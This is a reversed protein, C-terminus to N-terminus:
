IRCRSCICCGFNSEFYEDEDKYNILHNIIRTKMKKESLVGGCFFCRKRKSIGIIQVLNANDYCEKRKSSLRLTPLVDEALSFPNREVWKKSENTLVRKQLLLFSFDPLNKNRM